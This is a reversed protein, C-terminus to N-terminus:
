RQRAPEKVKGTRDGIKEKAEQGFGQLKDKAKQEDAHIKDSDLLITANPKQNATDTSLQFWGRYFGAGVFRDPSRAPRPRSENGCRRVISPFM